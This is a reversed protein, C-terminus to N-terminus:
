LAAMRIPKLSEAEVLRQEISITALEMDATSLTFKAWVLALRIRLEEPSLRRNRLEAEEQFARQRCTEIIRRYSTIEVLAASNMTEDITM